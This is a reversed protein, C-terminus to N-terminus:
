SQMFLVNEAENARVKESGPGSITFKTTAKIDRSSTGIYIDFEGTVLKWDHVDIDWISLDRDRLTFEVTSSEGPQLQIKNFGKLMKPPEGAEKPFGVYLQAVEKGTMTGTNKVVISISRDDHM